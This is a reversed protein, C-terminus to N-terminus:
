NEKLARVIERLFAKGDFPKRFYAVSGIRRAEARAAADDHGTIFIVPSKRGSAM